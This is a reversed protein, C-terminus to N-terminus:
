GGKYVDQGSLHNFYIYISVVNKFIPPMMKLGKNNVTKYINLLLMLCM